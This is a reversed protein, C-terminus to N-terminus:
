SRPHSASLAAVRGADLSIGYGALPRAISSTVARRLAERGREDHGALGVPTPCADCARAGWLPAYVEITELALVALRARERDTLRDAAWDLFWFGLRSHPGEDAVLRDLVAHVLPSTAMARSRAMAPVSLTESVCSTAVALEAARMLARVGPTTMPAIKELDFRLPVAGGLETTLRGSLEVHFLEDVVIDAAVATLDVPAGCELLASTLASFAAASAYETFVGNTWVRRAEEVTGPAISALDLSGWPMDESGRRRRHLRHESAGGRWSLEFLPAQSM